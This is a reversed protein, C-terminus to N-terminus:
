TLIPTHMFTLSSCQAALQLWACMTFTEAQVSIRLDRMLFITTSNSLANILPTWLRNEKDERCPHGFLQSFDGPGKYLLCPPVGKHYKTFVIHMRLLDMTIKLNLLVLNHTSTTLPCSAKLKYSTTHM